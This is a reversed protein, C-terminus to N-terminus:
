QFTEKGKEDYTHIGIIKGYNYLIRKRLCGNIYFGKETLNENEDYSISNTLNGKIFFGIDKINGNHYYWYSNGERFNNKYNIEAQLRGDEYYIKQTGEAVWASHKLIKQYSTSLNCSDYFIYYIRQSDNLQAMQNTMIGNEQIIYETYKGNGIFHTLELANHSPKRLIKIKVNKYFVSDTIAQKKNTYGSNKIFNYVNIIISISLAFVLLITVLKYRHIFM